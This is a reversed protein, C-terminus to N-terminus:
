LGALQKRKGGWGELDELSGKEQGISVVTDEGGRGGGAGQGGNNNGQWEFRGACPHAFLRHSQASLGGM